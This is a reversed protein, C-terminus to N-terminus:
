EKITVNCPKDGYTVCFLWQPERATTGFMTGGGVGYVKNEEIKVVTWWSGSFWVEAGVRLETAPIKREVKLPKFQGQLGKLKLMAERDYYGGGSTKPQEGRSMTFVDRGGHQFKWIIYDGATGTIRWGM